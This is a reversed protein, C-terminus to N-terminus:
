AVSVRRKYTKRRTIEVVPTSPKMKVAYQLLRRDIDSLDFGNGVANEFRVALSSAANAIVDNHDKAATHYLAQLLAQAQRDSIHM